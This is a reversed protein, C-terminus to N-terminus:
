KTVTLTKRVTAVKGTAAEWVFVLEGTDIARTYFAIYPNAAVGQTFDMAFIEDGSYTVTLKTIIDRPISKGVADVRYGTEMVHRILTKIAIVDGKKAESPMSVRAQALAM